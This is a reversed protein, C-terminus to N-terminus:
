EGAETSGRTGGAAPLEKLRHRGAPTVEYIPETASQAHGERHRRLWGHKWCRACCNITPHKKWDVQSPKFKGPMALVARVTENRAARPLESDAPKVKDPDIWGFRGSQAVRIGEAVEYADLKM